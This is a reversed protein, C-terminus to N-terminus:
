PPSTGPTSSGRSRSPIRAKRISCARPASGWARNRGLPLCDTVGASEVGPLAEVRRVIEQYLAVQQIGTRYKQGPEITWIATHTPQFGLDVDLVRVFSRMLLGAGVLLVCALAIEGVVLGHRMWAGGPGRSSGRDSDKLSEHLDATSIQLAPALGFLLGTLLALAVTFGLAQADVRAAALMPISMADMGALARTTVVALLLGALAGCCSLLMSETLMQRILRVRGAGLATRVAIEKRRSAARALLLNSLNACAILLVAGVACLLVILAKHFRGSIQDQLSTLRAGFHTGREPHAQQLHQVLLDFEAQARRVTAGPRLRGIIALTNGWRDTENTIPFPTLMDVKAGPTFVSAFDFSEPLVGVVLTPDGNLTISRGVIQPDSGFRRQWLGNGLIVAKRGNWKCEEDDFARGLMPQIGLVQFFNQAVGYGILREPEGTETLTYSGYDSFAFYATLAEFSRNMDRFDRYNSVRSTVGSLGGAPSGNAIWVLRAPDRFPLPRFLVTNVVSFIATNAGIGLGLILVAVACFGADRRMTRLAYRLDQLIQEM